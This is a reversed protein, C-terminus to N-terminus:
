KYRTAGIMVNFGLDHYYDLCEQFTKEEKAYIKMIIESEEINYHDVLIYTRGSCVTLDGHYTVTMDKIRRM